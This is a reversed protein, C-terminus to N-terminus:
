SNRESRFQLVNGTSGAALLEAVFDALDAHRFPKALRPV